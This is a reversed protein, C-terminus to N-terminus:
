VLARQFFNKATQPGIKLTPLETDKIIVIKTAM